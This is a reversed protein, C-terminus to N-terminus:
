SMFSCNYIFPSLLNFHIKGQSHLGTLHSNWTGSSKTLFNSNSSHREPKKGRFIFHFSIYQFKEIVRAMSRDFINYTPKSWFNANIPFHCSVQQEFAVIEPITLIAEANIEIELKSYWPLSSQFWVCGRTRLHIQMWVAQNQSIHPCWPARKWGTNNADQSEELHKLDTKLYIRLLLIVSTIKTNGWVVIM